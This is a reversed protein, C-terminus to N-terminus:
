SKTEGVEVRPSQVVMAAAQSAPIYGAQRALPSMTISTQLSRSPSEMIVDLQPKWPGRPGQQQQSASQQQQQQLQRLICEDLVQDSIQLDNIGFLNRLTLRQQHQQKGRDGPSKKESNVTGTPPKAFMPRGGQTPVRLLCYTQGNVLIEEPRMLSVKSRQGLQNRAITTCHVVLHGPYAKMLQKTIIPNDFEIMEGDSKMVRIAGSPQLMCHALINGM